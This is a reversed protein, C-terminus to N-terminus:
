KFSNAEKILENAASLSSLTNQEGSILLSVYKNIEGNDVCIAEGVTIDEKISKSVYVVQDSFAAIQPLHTITFIQSNKSMEYMKKGMLFAIKGSIGSDIEDFILLPLHLYSNFVYKIAFMIRSNEGGSVSDKLSMYEMGKNMSVMFKISYLGSISLKDNKIFNVKFSCGKLGLEEFVKMIETSLKDGYKKRVQYLKEGKEITQSLLKNAKEELFKLNFEFSELCDLEDEMKNLSSLIDSTTHGYKKQLFSLDYLRENLLEIENSDSTTEYSEIEYLAKDVEDLNSMLDNVKEELITNKLDYLSNRLLNSLENYQNIYNISNNIVDHVKSTESLEKLRENAIEIENEKIDYKKIEDIRYKLYDVDINNNNEKLESIEKLVNQYENYSIVYDAKVKKIEQDGFNDLLNLQGFDTFLKFNDFQSHIDILNQTVKKIFSLPLTYGNLKRVIKGDKKSQISLILENSEDDLYEKLENDNKLGNNELSFIAEIFLPKEDDIIKTNINNIGRVLGLADIIISKGSGTEGLFSTLGKKFDLEVDKIILYNKISLHILM